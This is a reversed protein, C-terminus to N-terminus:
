CVIPRVRLPAAWTSSPPELGIVRPGWDRVFRSFVTHIEDTQLFWGTTAREPSVLVAGIM